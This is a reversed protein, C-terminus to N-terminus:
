LTGPVPRGVFRAGRVLGCPRGPGRWFGSTTRRSRRRHARATGRPRRVCAWRRPPSPTVEIAPGEHRRCPGPLLRPLGRVADVPGWGPWCILVEPGTEVFAQRREPSSAPVVNDIMVDMYALARRSPTTRGLGCKLPRTPWWMGRRELRDNGWKAISEAVLAAREQAAATIAAALGAAGSGVMPVNVERNWVQAM